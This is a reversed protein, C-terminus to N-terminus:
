KDKLGQLWNQFQADDAPAAGPDPPAAPEGGSDEVAFFQDFKLHSSQRAIPGSTRMVADGRFVADLSLESGAPQTPRGRIPAVEGSGVATALARGMAEDASEPEAGGFLADLSGSNRASPQPPPPAVSGNTVPAAGNSRVARRQALGAFYSRATRAAPMAVPLEAAPEAVPEAAPEAAPEAPPEAVTEAVPGAGVDVAVDATLGAAPELDLVEPEVGAPPAAPVADFGTDLALPEVAFEDAAPPAADNMPVLHDTGPAVVPIEESVRELTLSSRGGGELSAIRERISADDPNQEALKRYVSLAEDRFGQQLYLEAMTETVFVEPTTPPETSEDAPEGDLAIDGPMDWGLGSDLTLDGPAPATPPVTPAEEAPSGLDTFEIGVPAPEDHAPTAGADPFEINGFELDAVGPTPADTAMPVAPESPTAVPPPVPATDGFDLEVDVLPVSPRKAPVSDVPMVPTAAQSARDA